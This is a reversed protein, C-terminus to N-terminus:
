PFDNARASIGALQARANQLPERSAPNSNAALLQDILDMRQQIQEEFLSPSFPITYVTQNGEDIHYKQVAPNVPGAYPNDVLPTGMEFQSGALTSALTRWATEPIQNLRAKEVLAAGAEPREVSAQALMQLALDGRPTGVASPDQAQRLLAPIGQGDPLAALTMMAYYEWQPIDKELDAVVSADGYTQIIQFLPAVDGGALRDPSAQGLSERAAKLIEQRYEGPAQQEINRALIAVEWPDGTNQLTRLSVELAEPGGIQKLADFLGIRLSSYDVMKGGKQDGYSLDANRALFERISPVAATGLAVLDKLGQNIQKAQEPTLSGQSLDM